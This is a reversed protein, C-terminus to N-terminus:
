YGGYHSPAPPKDDKEKKILDNNLLGNNESIKQEKAMKEYKQDGDEDLLTIRDEGYDYDIRFPNEDIFYKIPREEFKGEDLISFKATDSKFIDFMEFKKDIYQSNLKYFEVVREQVPQWEFKTHYEKAVWEIKIGKSEMDTSEMDDNAAIKYYLVFNNDFKYQQTPLPWGDTNIEYKVIIIDGPRVSYLKMEGKNEEFNIRKENLRGTLVAKFIDSHKNIIDLGNEVSKLGLCDVFGDPIGYSPHGPVDIDYVMLTPESKDITKYVAISPYKNPIGEKYLGGPDTRLQYMEIWDPKKDGNIDIATFLLDFKELVEITAKTKTMQPYDPNDRTVYFEYNNLIFSNTPKLENYKTSKKAESVYAPEFSTREELFGPWRIALDNNFKKTELEITKEDIGLRKKFEKYQNLRNYSSEIKRIIKLKYLQKDKINADEIYKTISSDGRPDVIGEIAVALGNLKKEIVPTEISDYNIKYIMKGDDSETMVFNDNEDSEIFRIRVGEQAFTEAQELTLNEENQFISEMNQIMGGCGFILLIIPLIIPLIIKKM